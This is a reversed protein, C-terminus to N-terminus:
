RSAPRGFQLRKVRGIAGTPAVGGRKLFTATAPTWVGLDTIGNGDWDGTVPV